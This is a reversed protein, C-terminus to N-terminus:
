HVPEAASGTNRAIFEDTASAQKAGPHGTTGDIVPTPKTRKAPKDAKPEIEQQPSAEPPDLTLDIECSKLKALKGFESTGVDPADINVKVIVAGDKPTLRWGTLQCEELVIDNRGTGWGIIIKYGTMDQKWKLTGLNSGARTLQGDAEIGELQGQKVKTADREFLFSRLSGDFKVLDGPLMSWSVVLKAGPNEDPQRNKRSLVVVDQLKAKTKPQEFM